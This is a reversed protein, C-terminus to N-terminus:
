IIRFTKTEMVPWFYKGNNFNKDNPFKPLYFKEDKEILRARHSRHFDENGLWWPNIPKYDANIKLKASTEYTLYLFSMTNNYGRAKWELLCYDHYMALAEECGFWMKIAPHNKYRAEPTKGSVIDHIQKAEIRQKGLRRWDLAKVSLAFDSHPLFTIM